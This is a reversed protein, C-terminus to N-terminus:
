AAVWKAYLTIDETVPTNFNYFETLEADSYWGNFVYDEKTPNAPQVAKDGAPITQKPVTSGEDTDFTVEVYEAADSIYETHTSGDVPYATVTIGYAIADSANYTIEDRSTVAGSPIVIRKAGGGRLALEFVWVKEQPTEIKVNVTIEGDNGVTVASDGYVAKLVDANKSEILSFGFTDTMGTISSYVVNGGWEKIDNIEIENSNSVGDESVYGLCVFAAPLATTADTPITTGKPAVYVGGVVNPKGTSVNAATNNAM